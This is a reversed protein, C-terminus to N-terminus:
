SANEGLAAITQVFAVASRQGLDAVHESFWSRGSSTMVASMPAVRRGVAERSGSGNSKCSLRSRGDYKWACASSDRRGRLKGSPAQRRMGPMPTRM